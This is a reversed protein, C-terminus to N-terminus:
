SPVSSLQEALAAPLEINLQALGIQTNEYL